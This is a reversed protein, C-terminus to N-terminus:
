RWARSRTRMMKPASWSYPNEPTQFVINWINTKLGEAVKRNNMYRTYHIRNAAVTLEHKLDGTFFKGRVGAEASDAKNIQNNYSYKMTAAGSLGSLSFTNYFYEM